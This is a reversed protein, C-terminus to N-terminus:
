KIVLDKYSGDLFSLAYYKYAKTTNNPLTITTNGTINFSNKMDAGLSTNCSFDWNSPICIFMYAKNCTGANVGGKGLRTYGNGIFSRFNFNSDRPNTDTFGVFAYYTGTLTLAYSDKKGAPAPSEYNNGKNDKPQPGVGYTARYYFFTNGETVTTPITTNSANGVYIFSNEEDLEGVRYDQFVNNIKIAGRSFSINFNNKLTPGISGVERPSSYNKFSLGASPDTYTPYVTPFLIGDFLQNYTMKGSLDSVKTGAKFDGYNEVMAITGDEINSNYTYLNQSSAIKDVSISGNKIADPNLYIVGNNEM